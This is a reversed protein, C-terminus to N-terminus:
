KIPAPLAPLINKTAGAGIAATTLNHLLATSTSQLIGFAGLILFGTNFTFIKRYNSEIRTTMGQSLKRLTILAELNNDLLTIDAVERALDTADRLSISVDAKALAPTDNIGDGVMIVKHGQQQLMEVKDAKDEPLVESFVNTIGLEKAIKNAAQASDGTLMYVNNIGLTKLEKIIGAAEDRAPEEVCIVGALREDVSLYVCSYGLGERDIISQEEETVIVENDDTLFHMSGILVKHERWTSHIGHSVIYQVDAHEEKHKLNEEEAQRVIARALSHPFHEELCAALRLVEDRSFDSFALVKAVKPTAKTLTGTKDFIITDAESIAELYKGGKVMIRNNSAESLASIVSIPTALKIACSYDVTLASLAKKTSRTLLLVAGAFLFSYPVIRDALNEAKATIASKLEESNEVLNLISQIRSESHLSNVSVIIEGDVVVTGAFVSDGQSKQVPMSEGTMSAENVEANGDFVEGDVPIMSGTRVVIKEGIQVDVLSKQVDEDNERVWVKDIEFMLASSLTNRTKERTYDELENSIGLLFMISAANSYHGNLVSLGIVAGDLVDVNVNGKSLSKIGEWAYGIANKIIFFKGIPTPLLYKRAYRLIFRNLINQRFKVALKVSEDREIEPIKELNNLNIKQLQEILKNSDANHEILVSGTFYNVEVKEIGKYRKIEHSLSHSTESDLAYRGLRLRLYGPINCAIQFKM